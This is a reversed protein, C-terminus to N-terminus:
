RGRELEVAVTRFEGALPPKKAVRVRAGSVGELALLRDAIRGALAELLQVSEGEVVERVLEYARAYDITDALRDSAAARALDARLEVDVTFRAPLEREPPHVGHRGSFAMGEM